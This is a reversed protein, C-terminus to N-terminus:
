GRVKYSDEMLIKGTKDTKLIWSRIPLVGLSAPDKDEFVEMFSLNMSRM